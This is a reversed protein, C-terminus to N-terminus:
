RAISDGRHLVKARAGERLNTFLVSLTRLLIRLDFLPSSHRLYHLDCDLRGAISTDGRYGNVQAWGTIGPRARLRAAYAPFQRKFKKVFHPREPRPGVLSMEGRVVHILQPLEDLGTRRLWVAFPHSALASWEIESRDLPRADLTRFKLLRFLRGSRGVRRQSFLVPRGLTSAIGLAIVGVAPLFLLLLASGVVIDVIRKSHSGSVWRSTTAHRGTASNRRPRSSSAAATRVDESRVAAGIKRAGNEKGRSSGASAPLVSAGYDRM